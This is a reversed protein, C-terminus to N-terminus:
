AVKYNGLFHPGGATRIRELKKVAACFKVLNPMSIYQSSLFFGISKSGHLHRRFDQNLVKFLDVKSEHYSPYSSVLKLWIQYLLDEPDGSIGTYNKAWDTIGWPPLPPEFEFLEVPWM